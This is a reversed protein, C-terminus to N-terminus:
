PRRRVLYGHLEDMEAYGVPDQSGKASIAYLHKKRQKTKREDMGKLFEESSKKFERMIRADEADLSVFFFGEDRLYELM